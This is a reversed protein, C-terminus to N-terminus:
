AGTIPMPLTFANCNAYGANAYTRAHIQADAGTITIGRAANPTVSSAVTLRSNAALEIADARTTGPDGSANAHALALHGFKSVKIKGKFGTNNGSLAIQADLPNNNTSCYCDRAASDNLKVNLVLDESACVLQSAITLAWSSSTVPTATTFYVNHVGNVCDLTITGGSVTYKQGGTGNYFAGSHWRVDSCTFNGRVNIRGADTGDESGVHFAHGPFSPTKASTALYLSSPYVYCDDSATIISTAPNGSEMDTWKEVNEASFAATDTGIIANLKYNAAAAELAVVCVAGMAALRAIERM